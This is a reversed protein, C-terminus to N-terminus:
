LCPGRGDFFVDDKEKYGFFFLCPGKGQMKMKKEDKLKYLLLFWFAPVSLDGGEIKLKRASADCISLSLNGSLKIYKKGEIQIKLRGM